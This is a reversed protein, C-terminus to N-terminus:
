ILGVLQTSYAANHEILIIFFTGSRASIKIFGAAEKNFSFCWPTKIVPTWSQVSRHLTLESARSYKLFTFQCDCEWILKRLTHKLWMIKSSHIKSYYISPSHTTSFHPFTISTISFIIKNFFTHNFILLLILIKIHSMYKEIGFSM